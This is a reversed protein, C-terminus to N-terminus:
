EDREVHWVGNVLKSDQVTFIGYDEAPSAAVGAGFFSIAIIAGAFVGRMAAEQRQLPKEIAYSGCIPELSRLDRVPSTCTRIM